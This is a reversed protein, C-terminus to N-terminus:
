DSTPSAPEPAPGAAGDLLRIESFRDLTLLTLEGDDKRLEVRRLWLKDDKAHAYWSGTKQETIKEIVGTITSRWPRARRGVTQSIEVRQGRRLEEVSITQM